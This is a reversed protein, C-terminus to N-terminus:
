SSGFQYSACLLRPLEFLGMNKCRGLARRQLQLLKRPNELRRLYSIGGAGGLRWEWVCLTLARDRDLSAAVRGGGRGESTWGQGGADGDTM